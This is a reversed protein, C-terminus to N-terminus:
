KYPNYSWKYNDPAWRTSEPWFLERGWVVSKGWITTITLPFKRSNWPFRPQHFIIIQGSLHYNNRKQPTLLNPQNNPNTTFKEHSKEFCNWSVNWQFFPHFFTLSISNQQSLISRLKTLIESQKLVIYIYQYVIYTYIYINICLVHVTQVELLYKWVWIEDHWRSLNGQEKSAVQGVTAVSIESKRGKRMVSLLAQTNPFEPNWFTAHSNWPFKDGRFSVHNAPVDVM